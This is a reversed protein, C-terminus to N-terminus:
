AAHRINGVSSNIEVGGSFDCGPPTRIVAMIELTTPHKRFDTVTYGSYWERMPPCPWGRSAWIVRHDVKDGVKFGEHSVPAEFSPPVDVHAQDNSQVESVPAQRM